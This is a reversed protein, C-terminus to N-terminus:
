LANVQWIIALQYAVVFAYVMTLAAAAILTTRWRRLLWLAAIGATVIGMKFLFAPLLGADLFYAMLANGERAVGRDLVHATLAFDALNLAWVAVLLWTTRVVCSPCDRAPAFRREAVAECTQDDNM